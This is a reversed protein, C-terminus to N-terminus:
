LEIEISDSARFAANTVTYDIKILVHHENREEGQVGPVTEIKNIQLFPIFKDVKVQLQEKIKNHADKTNQEFLYKKLNAGFTPRYLREGENTLILHMLDSKIAQKSLNNMSLFKGKNDDEFPFEINIFREAM